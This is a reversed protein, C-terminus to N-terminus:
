AASIARASSAHPQALLRCSTRTLSATVPLGIEWAVTVVKNGEADLPMVYSVLLSPTACKPSRKSISLKGQLTMTVAGPYSFSYKCLWGVTSFGEPQVM